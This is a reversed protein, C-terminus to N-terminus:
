GAGLAIFSWGVAAAAPEPGLQFRADRLAEALSAGRRLYRHLAVMLPVAAEDNVPLVSAVLGATGLPILASTLGLLEDAGATAGRGSDCSSLVMRRPARRLGELDYATLPGDDMSLASFLPSDARFTGHAAIHALRAGDMTALVRAVDATGGGLVSVDRDEAYVDALQAVEDGAHALGPGHVLVVGGRDPGGLSRRARLWISASPAVSIVRGYLSPLLSWPVAHLGGPPVVVVAGDGLHRVAPGLLADELLYGAELLQDLRDEARSGPLGRALRNLGFRAFDFVRLAQKTPGATYRRVRGGGCVLLHLEGDIDVIEILRDDGLEDLLARVDFAAAAAAGRRSQGRASLARSRVARELRLQESRLTGSPMERAWGAALRGTVDRLAVLDAQLRGDDVPRVAPVALATARWRESWGLLLRPRGLRLAHRQGLAALEAGHTSALARLESSGLASRHEDIVDLGRRCASLLRRFDGAVEARLAEAQWGMARSLAPGRYRRRGAAALFEEATTMQGVAVAIRGALLWALPQEPSRLSSLERVARRAERLLATDPPGVAFAARLQALRAHARWWHRGQREFLEAAERARELARDPLGAALASTAGALLLEARKTQQGRIVNLREIAGDAEALADEPLGAALLAACREISLTPDSTGIREFRREAEDFSALAKPLDGNRLALVGRNVVADASELEQGNATFLQEARLLDVEARRVSGAALHTFARSTLARAEWVQDDALRLSAIANSLDALADHHDGLVQLAGGRRLLVRGRLLGSSHEVATELVALGEATRGAFVLALGLSALVDAERDASRSRRALRRAERLERVAADVDGVERLVIGIAQRAISAELPAPGGALVERARELADNPRSLALSLLDVPQGRSPDIGHPPNIAGPV